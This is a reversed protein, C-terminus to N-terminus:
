HAAKQLIAKIKAHAAAIEEPTPTTQHWSERNKLGELWTKVQPYDDLSINVQSLFSVSAGAVIDALTFQNDIFFSGNLQQEYFNLVTAVKQQAQSIQKRDVELGVMNKLLPFFSPMLENLNVMQVMKVKAIAEADKPMLPPSPYKAELYDLIAFSEIVKFDNDILVPVHHFPNLALFDPQFQDGNLKLEILEFDLQKELLTIWVRRANNSIRNYYLQLM